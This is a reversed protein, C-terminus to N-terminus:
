KKLLRKAMEHYVEGFKEISQGQVNWPLSIRIAQGAEEEYGMAQLVHSASVKGSSCASGASVCFGALDLNMLQTQAAIGPLIASITQPLRELGKNISRGGSEEILCELRDTLHKISTWDQQSSAVLAASMGMIAALAPTGGRRGREQGGGPILPNLPSDQPLLLAGVGKPGGFKHGSLAISAGEYVEPALTMRGMVQVADIHLFAEYKRCLSSVEGLPSLIGTENNAAMVCVLSPVGDRLYDHLIDLKLLGNKDVPLRIAEPAGQLIADHETAGVLIRRKESFGFAHLALMDAETAGSTFVCCGAEREFFSAIIKRSEELAQRAQRGYFHVSSPNGFLDLGKIVSERAEPRLIETANADLYVPYSARINKYSFETM